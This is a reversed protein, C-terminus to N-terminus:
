KVSTRPYAAHAIQGTREAIRAGLLDRERAIEAVGAIVLIRHAGAVQQDDREPVDGAEELRRVFLLDCQQREHPLRFPEEVLPETGVAVVDAHVDALSGPLRHHVQVHVDDWPIGPIHLIRPAPHSPHNRLPPPILSLIIAIEM